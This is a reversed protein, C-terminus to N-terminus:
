LADYKDGQIFFEIKMIICRNLNYKSMKVYDKETIIIYDYNGSKFERKIDNIDKEEFDHHDSYTKKGVIDPSYKEINKFFSVPNAIGSVAFIKKGKIESIEIKKGSFDYFYSPKHIAFSIKKKYPTLYQYIEKRKESSVMDSKTIIFENARRLESIPERLIGDPVLHNNGFPNIADILVINWDRKLKRHQFGDDMIIVETDFREKALMCGNFRNKSVIVPIKLNLAHLFPEDGSEAYSAMIKEGDSVIMTDNQRVGKYGRSVIATKKGDRMYKRAFYQVAPTKGTGGVTINGICVIFVNEVKKEKIIGKDYMKNRIKVLFGYVESLIKLMKEGQGWKQFIM